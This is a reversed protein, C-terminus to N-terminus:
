HREDGKEVGRSNHPDWAAHRSCTHQMIIDRYKGTVHLGDLATVNGFMTTKWWPEYGTLIGPM